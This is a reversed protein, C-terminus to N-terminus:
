SGAEAPDTLDGEGSEDQDARTQVSYIEDMVHEISPQYIEAIHMMGVGLGKGRHKRRVMIWGRDDAWLAFRIGAGVAVAAIALGIIWGTEMIRNDDM